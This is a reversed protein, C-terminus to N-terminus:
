EEKKARAPKTTKAEEVAEALKAKDMKSRGEIDLDKAEERLETVTDPLVLSIHGGELLLARRTESLVAKFRTGPAHGDVAQVGTVEFEEADAPVVPEEPQPWVLAPNWNPPPQTM